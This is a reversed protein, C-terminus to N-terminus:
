SAPPFGSPLAALLTPYSTPLFAMGWVGIEEGISKMVLLDHVLRAAQTQDGVGNQNPIRKLDGLNNSSEPLAADGNRIFVNGVDRRQHMAMHDGVTGM